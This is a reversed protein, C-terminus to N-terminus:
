PLGVLRRISALMTKSSVPKQWLENWIPPGFPVQLDASALVVPIRALRPDLRLRHCFEIGNMGPMSQDTIILVPQLQSAVTLGAAGNSATEVQYGELQLIRGWAILISRDDDVLLITHM